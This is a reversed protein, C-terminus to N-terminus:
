TAIIFKKFLDIINIEFCESAIEASLFQRNWHVGISTTPARHVSYVESREHLLEVHKHDVSRPGRLGAYMAPLVIRNLHGVTGYRCLYCWIILNERFYIFKFFRNINFFFFM